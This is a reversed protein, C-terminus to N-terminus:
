ARRLHLLAAAGCLLPRRELVIAKCQRALGEIGGRQMFDTDVPIQRHSRFGRGALAMLSGAALTAPLELNREALKFDAVLVLGAAGLALELLATAQASPLFFFTYALRVCPLIDQEARLAQVGPNLPAHAHAVPWPVRRALATQPFFAPCPPLSDISAATLPEARNEVLDDALNKARGKVLGDARAPTM